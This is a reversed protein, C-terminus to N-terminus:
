PGTTSQNVKCTKNLDAISTLPIETYKRENQIQKIKNIKKLKNIANNKTPHLAEATDVNQQKFQEVNTKRSAVEIPIGCILTTSNSSELNNQRTGM